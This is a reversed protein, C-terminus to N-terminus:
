EPKGAGSAISTIICNGIRLGYSYRNGFTREKFKGRGKHSLALTLPSCSFVKPLSYLCPKFEKSSNRFQGEAAHYSISVAAKRVPETLGVRESAPLKGTIQYSEQVPKRSLQGMGLDQYARSKKAELM